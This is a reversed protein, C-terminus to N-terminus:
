DNWVVGKKRWLETLYNEFTVLTRINHLRREFHRSGSDEHLRDVLAGNMCAAGKNQWVGGSLKGNEFSMIRGLGGGMIAATSDCSYFPYRELAWQSTLGFAHVKKPWYKQIVSFCTDIFRKLTPQQRSLPVMGGLAIYECTECYYELVSLPAGPHYTGLPKVGAARMIDFNKRTAEYDGIVDLTAYCFLRDEHEKIYAIYEDLSIVAGRSAASFAGSDLFLRAGEPEPSLWFAFSEPINSLDAFSLLRNKLIGRVGPEFGDTMGGFYNGAAFYFMREINRNNKARLDTGACFVLM